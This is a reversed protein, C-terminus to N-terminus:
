RRIAERLDVVSIILIRCIYIILMNWILEEFVFVNLVMLVEKYNKMALCHYNSFIRSSLRKLFKLTNEACSKQHSKQAFAPSGLSRIESSILKRIIKNTDSKIKGIWCSMYNPLIIIFFNNFDHRLPDTIYLMHYKSIKRYIFLSFKLIKLVAM